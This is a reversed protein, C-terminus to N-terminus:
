DIHFTRKPLAAAVEKSPFDVQRTPPSRCRPCIKTQLPFIDSCVGCWNVKRASRLQHKKLLNAAKRAICDKCLTIDGRLNKIIEAIGNSPDSISVINLPLDQRGCAQCFPATYIRRFARWDPVNERDDALLTVTGLPSGGRAPLAVPADVREARTAPELKFSRAKNDADWQAFQRDISDIVLGADDVVIDDGDIKFPIAKGWEMVKKLFTVHDLDLMAAADKVHVRRTVAILSKMRELLDHNSTMDIAIAKRM